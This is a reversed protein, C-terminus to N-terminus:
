QGGFFHKKLGNSLDDHWGLDYVKDREELKKKSVPWTVHSQDKIWIFRLVNLGWPPPAAYGGSFEAWWLRELSTEM